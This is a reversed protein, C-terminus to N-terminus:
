LEPHLDRLLKQEVIYRGLYLALPHSDQLSAHPVTITEPKTKAEFAGLHRNYSLIDMSQCLFTVEGNVKDKLVAKVRSMRPLAADATKFCLVNGERYKTGKVVGRLGIYSSESVGAPVDDVSAQECVDLSAKYTFFGDSCVKPGIWLQHRWALTYAPNKYNKTTELFKNLQQHKHEYRLTCLTVLAGHKRIQEPYHLLFHMKPTIRISGFRRKFQKLWSEISCQLLVLEGETFAQSIIMRVITLYTLLIEWTENGEQVYGGIILPLLRM